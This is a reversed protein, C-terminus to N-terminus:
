SELWSPESGDSANVTVCVQANFLGAVYNKSVASILDFKKGRLIYFVESFIFIKGRKMFYSSFAHLLNKFLPQMLFIPNMKCINQIIITLFAHSFAENGHYAENNHQLRM